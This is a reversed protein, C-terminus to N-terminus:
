FTVMLQNFVTYTSDDTSTDAGAGVSKWLDGASFFGFKLSYTMNDMIKWDAGIDFEVGLDDEVATDFTETEDADATALIANLTIDETLPYSGAIYIVDYGLDVTGTGGTASVAGGNISNLNGVGGLGTDIYYSTAILLPEWDAGGLGYAQVETADNNEGDVHAYGLTLTAPGVAMGASLHYAMADYDIDQTGAADYDIFDGTIMGLEGEINVPGIAGKFYPNITWFQTNQTATSKDNTYAFEIGAEMGEANYTVDVFYSDVDMDAGNTATNIWGDDMETVKEFGVALSFPEFEMSVQIQDGETGSSLFATGFNGVGMRGVDLTFMDFTATLWARDWDINDNQLDGTTSNGSDTAGWLKNDLADFRTTVMLNDSVKFVTQLRFRMDMWADSNGGTDNLDTNDEYMGRTRYHGSFETDLAMAPIAFLMVAAVALAIISLKKM